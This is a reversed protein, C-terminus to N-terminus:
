TDASPNPLNSTTNPSGENSIRGAVEKQKPMEKPCRHYYYRTENYFYEYVQTQCYVCRENIPLHPLSSFHQNVEEQSLDIQVNCQRCYFTQNDTSTSKDYKINRYSTFFPHVADVHFRDVPTVPESKSCFAGDVSNTCQTVTSEPFQSVPSDTHKESTFSIRESESSTLLQSGLGIESCESASTNPTPRYSPSNNCKSAEDNDM